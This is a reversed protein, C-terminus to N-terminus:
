EKMMQEAMKPLVSMLAKSVGLYTDKIRQQSIIGKNLYLGFKM